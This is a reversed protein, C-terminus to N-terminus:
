VYANKNNFAVNHSASVVAHPITVKCFGETGLLGKANFGVGSDREYEFSSVVSNTSMDRAMSCDIM